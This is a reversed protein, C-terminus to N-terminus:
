GETALSDYLYLRYKEIISECKRVYDKNTAYGCSKLGILWRHYDTPDYAHCCKYRDGMLLRSHHEISEEVTAYACFKENPRDDDHLSYPRGESLWQQSCKIGFYNNSYLALSSQGWGSEYAMQALTVSAPIGYMRQQNMAATAYKEFFDQCDIKSIEGANSGLAQVAELRVNNIYDLLIRPNTREGKYHCTIHLHPGTSRGTNGSIGVVDGAIVVDGARLEIKSLHCYSITYEGHRLRIYLGSAKDSGTSEVYGDFMAYVDEYHAKLDLGSHPVKRGTFPDKRMGYQSSIRISKLPYSVSLYRELWYDRDESEAYHSVPLILFFSIILSKLTKMCFVKVFKYFGTCLYIM